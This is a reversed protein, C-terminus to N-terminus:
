ESADSNSWGSLEHRPLGDNIKLWPLRRSAWTHDHPAINEPEDMSCVTVYIEPAREPQQYTLQTGCHQCFQRIVGPRSEYQAPNGQMISFKAEGFEAWAVLPAGSTCRCHRCHCMTVRRPLGETEYRVSGCFCGGEIIM